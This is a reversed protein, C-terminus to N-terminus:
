GSRGAVLARALGAWAAATWAALLVVVLVLVATPLAAQTAWLGVCVPLFVIWVVVAAVPGLSGIWAWAEAFLAGDDAVGVLAGAWLLVFAASAWTGLVLSAWPRRRTAPRGDPGTM